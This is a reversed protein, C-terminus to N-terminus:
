VGVLGWLDLLRVTMVAASLGALSLVALGWRSKEVLSWLVALPPVVVAGILYAVFTPTDLDDPRDALGVLGIVLQVILLLELLAAGILLPDDLPLDRLARLLAYVMVALGLVVVIWSFWAIM